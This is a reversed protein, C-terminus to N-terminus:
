MTKIISSAVTSDMMQDDSQDMTKIISSSTDNDTFGNQILKKDLRSDFPLVSIQFM